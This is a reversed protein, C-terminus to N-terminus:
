AGLHRFIEIQRSMQDHAHFFKFVDEFAEFSQASTFVPVSFQVRPPLPQLKIRGYPVALLLEPKFEM